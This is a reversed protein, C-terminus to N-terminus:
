LTKSHAYLRPLLQAKRAFEWANHCALLRVRELDVREQEGIMRVVKGDRIHVGSWVSTRTEMVKGDYTVYHVLTGYFPVGEPAEPVMKFAGGGIDFFIPNLEKPSASLGLTDPSFRSINYIKVPGWGLDESIPNDHSFHLSPMWIKYNLYNYERSRFWGGWWREMEPSVGAARTCITSFGTGDPAVCYGNDAKLSGPIFLKGVEQSALALSSDMPNGPQIAKFVEPAPPLIPEYYFGSYPSKKEDERLEPIDTFDYASL